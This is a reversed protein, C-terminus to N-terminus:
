EQEEIEFEEIRGCVADMRLLGYKEIDSIAENLEDEDEFYSDARKNLFSKAEEETDFIEEGIHIGTPYSKVNLGFLRLSGIQYTTPATATIKFRTM